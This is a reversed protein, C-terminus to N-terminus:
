SYSLSVVFNYASCSIDTIQEVIMKRDISRSEIMTFPLFYAIFTIRSVVSVLVVIEKVM